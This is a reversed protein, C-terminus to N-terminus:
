EPDENPPPGFVPPKIPKTLRSRCNESSGNQLETITMDHVGSGPNYGHEHLDVIRDESTKLIVRARLGTTHGAKIEAYLRVLEGDAWGQFGGQCVGDEEYQLGDDGGSAPPCVPIPQGDQVIIDVEFEATAM